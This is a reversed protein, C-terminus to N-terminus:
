TGSLAAVEDALSAKSVEIGEGVQFRVFRSISLGGVSKQYKEVTMDPDKVYPQKLLSIEALWKRMRGVIMKEVINPPKGSELAQAVLIDKKATQTADDVDEPSLFEPRAAAVHMAVNRSFEAATDADAGAVAAEVLVGIKAGAHVYGGIHGEATELRQLRRLQINEGIAVIQEPVWDAVTKGDAISVANLGDIDTVGANFALDTLQDVFGQFNENRAVFDTECNVEIIVATNGEMKIGILGEAATRGAKKAAKSIGKKQLWILAEEVNGDVEGLAKKCDMMGAGSRQRLEKISAITVSM